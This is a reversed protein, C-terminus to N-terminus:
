GCESWDQGPPEPELTASIPDGDGDRHDYDHGSRPGDATSSDHHKELPILAKIHDASTLLKAAVRREMRTDRQGLQERVEAGDVVSASAGELERALLGLETDAQGLNGLAILLAQVARVTDDGNSLEHLAIRIHQRAATIM